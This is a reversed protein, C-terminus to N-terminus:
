YKSAMKRLEAISKAKPAKQVEKPQKESMKAYDKSYTNGEKGSPAEKTVAKKGPQLSTNPAVTAAPYPPMLDYMDKKYARANMDPSGPLYVDESKGAGSGRVYDGQNPM